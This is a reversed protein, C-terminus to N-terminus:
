LPLSNCLCTGALPRNASIAHNQLTQFPNTVTSREKFPDIHERKVKKVKGRDYEVDYEDRKRKAGSVGRLLAQQEALASAGDPVDWASATNSHTSPHPM